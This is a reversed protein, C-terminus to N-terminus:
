NQKDATTVTHVKFPEPHDQLCAAEIAAKNKALTNLMWAPAKPYRAKTDALGQDFTSPPSTEKELPKPNMNLVLGHLGDLQAPGVGLGEANIWVTCNATPFDAHRGITAVTIVDRAYPSSDAKAPAASAQSAALLFAALGCAGIFHNGM